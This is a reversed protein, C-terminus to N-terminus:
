LLSLLMNKYSPNSIISEPSIFVLQVDGTLVRRVADRDLQAEGIFETKLGRPSFKAKQDMIDIPSIGFLLAELLIYWFSFVCYHCISLILQM